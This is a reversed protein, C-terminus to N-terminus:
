HLTEGQANERQVPRGETRIGGLRIAKRLLRSRGMAVARDRSLVGVRCLLALVVATLRIENRSLGPAAVILPLVLLPPYM